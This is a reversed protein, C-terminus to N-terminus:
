LKVEAEFEKICSETARIFEKNDPSAEFWGLLKYLLLLQDTRDLKFVKEKLEPYNM